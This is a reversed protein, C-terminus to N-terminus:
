KCRNSEARRACRYRVASEPPLAAILRAGAERMRSLLDVGQPDANAIGSIDVVLMRGALISRATNWARELNQVGDGSLEGRLVFEFMEVGDHQYMDM